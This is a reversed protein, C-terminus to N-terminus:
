RLTIIPRIMEEYLYDSFKDAGIANLHDNEFYDEISFRADTFYSKSFVTKNDTVNQLFKAIEDLKGRSAFASYTKYVPPVILLVPIHRKQCLSIINKVYETNKAYWTDSMLLEHFRIRQYGASDNIDAYRTFSARYSGTSNINDTFDATFNHSILSRVTDPQYLAILSFNRIDFITKTVSPMLGMFRFYYFQRFYEDPNTTFDYWLSFYSIPLVILKLNKMEPLYKNVIERDYWLSQSTDALNIGPVPWVAPNIDYYSHSSGLVLIQDAAANNVLKQKLSYSNPILSLKVEIFGLFIIIPILFLVAKLINIKSM